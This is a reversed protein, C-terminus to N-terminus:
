TLSYRIQNDHGKMLEKSYFYAEDPTRVDLATHPHDTNYFIIWESIVRVAMFGDILEHLYVAEQKLEDAFQIRNKIEM